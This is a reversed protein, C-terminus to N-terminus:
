LCEAVLQIETPPEAMDLRDLNSRVHKGAGGIRAALSDRGPISATVQQLRDLEKGLVPPPEGSPAKVSRAIVGPSQRVVVVLIERDRARQQRSVQLLVIAVNVGEATPGVVQSVLRAVSRPADFEQIPPPFPQPRHEAAVRTVRYEDCQALRDRAMRQRRVIELCQQVREHLVLHNQAVACEFLQQSVAAERCVRDASEYEAEISAPVLM